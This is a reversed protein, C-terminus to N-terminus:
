WSLTRRRYTDLFGTEPLVQVQIRFFETEPLSSAELIDIIGNYIEGPTHKVFRDTDGECLYELNLRVVIFLDIVGVYDYLPTWSASIEDEEVSLDIEGLKANVVQVLQEALGVREAPSLSLHKVRPTRIEIIVM